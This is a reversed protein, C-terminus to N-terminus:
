PRSRILDAALRAAQVLKGFRRADQAGLAGLLLRSRPPLHGADCEACAGPRHGILESVAQALGAPGPRNVVRTGASRVARDANAPAIARQALELMPLDEASDGIALALLKRDGADPQVGLDGALIRLATGKNISSVMFDTQFIGEISRIREAVGAATLAAMITEPRLRRRQGRENFRYARIAERYDDDLLVGESATLAERLRDMDRREDASLLRRVRGTRSDYTAAGYEAVGGVVRYAQCRQRVEDLSRGTALVPRYGHRSLARMAFAGVPSICTFGMGRTELTWDVDIGCLPGAREFGVDTFVTEEYYNQIERAFAREVEVSERTSDRELEAVHVLRYLLWREADIPSGTRQRYIKRLAQSLTPDGAHVCGALDFVHDYCYIDLSCFAREEFDVKRLRGGIDAPGFWKPLAMSGDIVSPRAVRLLQKVVPHLLPRALQGGRGFTRALIDSSRQWVAGRDVLRLSVDEAVPLARARRTAYDVIDAAVSDMREPEIPGLRCGEPLWERFLLGNRLGFIEPLFERMPQAVAVSQEGFYGFGVGKVYVERQRGAPNTHDSVEVRYLARVHGRHTSREALPLRHVAHVASTPPLMEALAHQVAQPELRSQIAWEDWRRVVSPYRQLAEALSDMGGLTQLLMVVSESAFGLRELEHATRALSRGSKPPDDTVLALGGSSMVARLAYLEHPRWRQGPRFTLVRVHKYGRARLFAGHLPATYSGSTRIGIVALPQLRDPWRSSFGETLHELDAPQQDFNRFCSPLRMVSRRLTIPLRARDRALGHASALLERAVSRGPSSVAAEALEDAMGAIRLQWAATSRDSFPLTRVRWRTADAARVGAAAVWGVPGKIVRNLHRAVRALSIPDGHLRDEAIQNLGAALLFANLWAERAIEQLLLGTM